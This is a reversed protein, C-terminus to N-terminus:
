ERGIEAFNRVHNNYWLGCSQREVTFSTPWIVLVIMHHTSIVFSEQDRLGRHQIRKLLGLSTQVRM